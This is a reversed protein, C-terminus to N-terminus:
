RPNSGRMSAEMGGQIDMSDLADRVSAHKSAHRSVPQGLLDYKKKSTNDQFMGHSFRANKHDKKDARSDDGQKSRQKDMFIKRSSGKQEQDDIFKEQDMTRKSYNRGM